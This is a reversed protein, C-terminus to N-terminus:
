KGNSCDSRLRKSDQLHRSEDHLLCGIALGKFNKDIRMGKFQKLDGSTYAVFPNMLILKNSYLKEILNLTVQGISAAALPDDEFNAVKSRWQQGLEDTLVKELQRKPM